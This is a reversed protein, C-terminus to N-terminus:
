HKFTFMCAIAIRYFEIYHPKKENVKNNEYFTDVHKIYNKRTFFQPSIVINLYKTAEFVVIPTIYAYMYNDGWDAKNSPEQYLKKETEIQLGIFSLFIPMKYGIIYSATYLWSNRNEGYDEKYVWSEYNTMNNSGFYKFGQDVVAVVHAWNNHIVEGLDFQFRTAFRFNFFFDRGNIPVKKSFGNSDSINKSFGHFKSFSWGTGIGVGMFFQMFAIPTLTTKFDAEFTIPTLNISGRFKLNNGHTLPNNFRLIAVELTEGLELVAGWPYLAMLSIDTEFSAPYTKKTNHDKLINDVEKDDMEQSAVPFIIFITIILLLIKLSKHM